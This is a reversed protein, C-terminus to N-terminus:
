EKVIRITYRHEGSQLSIFYVGSPIPVELPLHIENRGTSLALRKQFLIKGAADYLEILGDAQSAAQEFRLSLVQSFPNPYTSLPIEAPQNTPNDTSSTPLHYKALILQNDAWLGSIPFRIGAVYDADQIRVVSGATNKISDLDSLGVWKKEGSQTYNLILFEYHNTGDATAAAGVVYTEEEDSVIQEIEMVPNTTSTFLHEWLLNGSADLKTVLAGRNTSDSQYFSGGLYVHNKSDTSFSTLRAPVTPLPSFTFPKHYQWAKSGDKKFKTAQYQCCVDSVLFSGENDIVFNRNYYSFIENYPETAYYTVTQGSLSVEWSVFRTGQPSGTQGWVILQKELLRADLAAYGYPGERLTAEWLVEGTPSIKLLLLGSDDQDLYQIGGILYINGENDLILKHVNNTVPLTDGYFFTWLTDGTHSYKILVFRTLNVFPDKSNGTINLSQVCISATDGFTVIWGGQEM